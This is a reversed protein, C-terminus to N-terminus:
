PRVMRVGSGSYRTAIRDGRGPSNVGASCRMTPIRTLLTLRNAHIRCPPRLRCPFVKPRTEPVLGDARLTNGSKITRRSWHAASRSRRQSSSATPRTPGALYRRPARPSRGSGTSPWTAPARRPFNLNRNLGRKPGPREPAPPAPAALGENEPEGRSLRLYRRVVDEPPDSGPPSSGRSPPACRSPAATRRPACRLCIPAPRSTRCRSSGTASRAGPPMSSAAPPPTPLPACGSASRARASSASRSITPRGPRSCCNPAPARASRPSRPSCSKRAAACTAARRAACGSRPPARPSSLDLPAGQTQVFDELSGDPRRIVVVLPDDTSLHLVSPTAVKAALGASPGASACSRPPASRTSARRRPM